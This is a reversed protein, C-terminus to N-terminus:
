AIFGFEDNPFKLKPPPVGDNPEGAVVVAFVPEGKPLRATGAGAVAVAAPKNKHDANKEFFALKQRANKLSDINKKKQQLLM